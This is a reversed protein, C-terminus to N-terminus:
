PRRVILREYADLLVGLNKRPELTGLFLIPGGAPEALRRPWAPRGPSCVSIRSSEVRLRREVEGATHRSVVVVHDARRAHTAALAPYDRRIEARTREPYDLFDLDHVTVIRAATRSPILLPHMAQVVDLPRRALREVPPWGLRHWAYNLVRVPIRLDSIEPRGADTAGSPTSWAPMRDKWSSSFLVLSEGPPASELLASALEHVYEGVGTRQRLAPRYDLLIRV